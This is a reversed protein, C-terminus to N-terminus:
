CFVRVSDFLYAKVWGFLLFWDCKIFLIEVCDALWFCILLQMIYDISSTLMSHFVPYSVWIRSSHSFISLNPFSCCTCVQYPFTHLLQDNICDCRFPIYLPADTLVFNIDTISPNVAQINEETTQFKNGITVLDEKNQVRYFAYAMDCGKEPVCMAEGGWPLVVAYQLVVLAKLLAGTSPWPRRLSNGQQRM